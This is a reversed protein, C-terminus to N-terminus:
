RLATIVDERCQYLKHDLGAPYEYDTGPVLLEPDLMSIAQARIERSWHVSPPEYVREAKGNGWKFIQKMPFTWEVGSTPIRKGPFRQLPHWLLGEEDFGLSPDFIQDCELKGNRIARRVQAAGPVMLKPPEGNKARANMSDLAIKMVFQSDSQDNVVWGPKYVQGAPAEALEAGVGWGTILAGDAKLARITRENMNGSAVIGWGTAGVADLKQRAYISLHRYAGGDLRIAGNKKGQLVAEGAVIAAADIGRTALVTDVLFVPIGAALMARFSNIEEEFTLVFAHAMTGSVPIGFRMGADLNASKDFGGIYAARSVLNGAEAGMASRGAMEILLDSGAAVRIRAARTAVNTESESALGFAEFLQGLALTTDLQVLPEFPFAVDGDEFAYVDGNFRLNAFFDLDASDFLKGGMYPNPLTELYSLSEPSFRFSELFEIIGALGCAIMFTGNDPNSRRVLNWKSRNNAMGNMRWARIMTLAYLDIPLHLGNKSHITFM